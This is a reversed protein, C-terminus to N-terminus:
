VVDLDLCFYGFPHKYAGVVNIRKIAAFYEVMEVKPEDCTVAM